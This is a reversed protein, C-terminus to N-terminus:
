EIIKNEEVLKRNTTGVYWAIPIWVAIIGLSIISGFFLLESMVPFFAGITAGIGKTSRGGTADIWSKAKFKVDKSTPIYMIEKCPNNLAYGLGKIGVVCALFVYLSPLSWAFLVLCALMTPYLMLCTRLGFRRILFSTGILAFVFALSNVLLGQLGMFEVVKETSGLTQKACVKMQYEILFSIIEYITSVFLIGMLYPKSFILRLGEFVGTSKKKSDQVAIQTPPCMVTFLKLMIPVCLVAVSAIAFLAPIGIKTAMTMTVVSGLITGTQAGGLIIPYGKRASISDTISAVYAWFLPIVISGYAEIAVYLVWGLIRFPSTELNALGITPHTLLFAISLYIFGYVTAVLYVLHTKELLDVLKNYFILILIISVLSIMKAYPIGQTGVFHMLLADKLERLMWYAGVTFFFVGALLGFKKAEDRSVDGWLAHAIRYLM